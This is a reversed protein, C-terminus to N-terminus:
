KEGKSLHKKYIRNIIKEAKQDATQLEVLRELQDKNYTNTNKM